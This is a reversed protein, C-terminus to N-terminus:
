ATRYERPNFRLTRLKYAWTFSPWLTSNRGTKDIYWSACGGSLWVTGRMRDDVGSVFADQAEPKPEV